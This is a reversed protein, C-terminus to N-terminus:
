GPRAPRRRHGRRRSRAGGARRRAPCPRRAPSARDGLPRFGAEGKHEGAHPSARVEVAAGIAIEFEKALARGANGQEAGIAGAFDGRQRAAVRQYVVAHNHDQEVGAAINLGVRSWARRKKRSAQLFCCCRSGILASSLLAAAMTPCCGSYWASSASPSAASARSQLRSPSVLGKRCRDSCRAM